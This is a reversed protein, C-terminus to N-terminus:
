TRDEWHLTVPSDAVVTRCEQPGWDVLVDAADVVPDATRRRLWARAPENRPGPRYRLRVGPTSALDLLREVAAALLVDEVGRGLARCSIFAEEVLLGGDDDRRGAVVAVLGSDSLRDRLRATVVGADAAAMWRAFAAAPTRGLSVNFQNTRAALDAVRDLDERADLALDIRVDLSALYSAPDTTAAAARTTAAALDTARLRDETTRVHGHLGPFLGLATATARPDGAQVLGAVTTGAAVEALEGPNDDVFVVADPAIRLDAAVAAVGQSKAGWGVARASFDSWRLPFDPRLRFLEEVDAPENRSVVALLVGDDALGRLVRQLDAHGDTLTVGRPGDEGLVGDYLTMDLDVAVAKVRVGTAVPLWRLGLRQAVLVTAASSLATGGVAQLRTDTFADGLRAAVAGLDAVAVDPLVTGFGSLRDRLLRARDDDGPRDVVLVPATTRTRLATIRGILWDAVEDAALHDYRTHDLWVVEVDPGPDVADLAALSDDYDSLEFVASLGAYALFPGALSTVYEVPTNRHVRVRIERTPWSPALRLLDLRRPHEALVRSQWELRDLSHRVALAEAGPSSM